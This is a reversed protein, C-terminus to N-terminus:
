MREPSAGVVPQLHRWMIQVSEVDSNNNLHIFGMAEMINDMLIESIQTNGELEFHTCVEELDKEFRKM